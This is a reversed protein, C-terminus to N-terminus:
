GRRLQAASELFSAAKSANSAEKPREGRVNAQNHHPPTPVCMRVCVSERHTDERAGLQQAGTCGRCRGQQLLCVPRCANRQQAEWPVCM